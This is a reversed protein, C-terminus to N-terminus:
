CFRQFHQNWLCITSKVVSVLSADDFYYVLRLPSWGHSVGIEGSQLLSHGVRM